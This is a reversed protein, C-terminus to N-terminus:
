HLYVTYISYVLATNLKEFRPTNTTIALSQYDSILSQGKELHIKLTSQKRFTHGIQWSMMSEYSHQHVVQDFFRPRYRKFLPDVYFTLFIDIKSM